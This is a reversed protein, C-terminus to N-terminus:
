PEDSKERDLLGHIFVTLLRTVFPTFQVSFEAFEAHDRYLQDIVASPHAVPWASAAILVTTLVLEKASDPGLGTRPGSIATIMAHLAARGAQKHILASEVSVNHELTANLHGLLDCFLPDAALADTILQALAVPTLVAGTEASMAREIRGAWERYGTASLRLYIAERTEFYRLVNSKTLGVLVGIDGLSVSRVGRETALRRAADLIERERQAKHEPRRARKFPKGEPHEPSAAM